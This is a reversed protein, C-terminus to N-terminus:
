PTFQFSAHRLSVQVSLHKSIRYTKGPQATKIFHLVQEIHIKQPHWGPDLETLVRYIIERSIHEPWMIIRYRLLRYPPASSEYNELIKGLENDIECRLEVTEEILKLMKKNFTPNQKQAHPILTLRVYNRLYDQNENTSDERWELKNEKAYEILEAKTKNILPRAVIYEKNTNQSKNNAIKRLSTLGRWNTGRLLNLIATEIVDDQHHAMFISHASHKKCVRRLFDHRAERAEQESANPGLNGRGFECSLGYQKALGAVFESDAKSDERIGHDFHAVILQYNTTRLQYNSFQTLKNKVLLDLLVVSDVGGSVAVVLKEVDKSM